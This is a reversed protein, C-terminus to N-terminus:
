HELLQEVIKESRGYNRTLMAIAKEADNGLVQRVLFKSM